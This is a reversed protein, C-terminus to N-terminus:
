VSGGGGVLFPLKMTPSSIQVPVSISKGGGRGTDPEPSTSSTRKDKWVTWNNSYQYFQKSIVSIFGLNCVVVGHQKHLRNHELRVHVLLLRHQVLALEPYLQQPLLGTHVMPLYLNVTAYYPM